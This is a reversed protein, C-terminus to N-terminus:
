TVIHGYIISQQQSETYWDFHKHISLSLNEIEITTGWRYNCVVSDQM